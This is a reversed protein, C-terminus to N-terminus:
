QTGLYGSCVRLNRRGTSSCARTRTTRLAIGMGHAEAARRRICLLHGGATPMDHPMPLRLRLEPLIVPMRVSSGRPFRFKRIALLVFVVACLRAYNPLNTAVM